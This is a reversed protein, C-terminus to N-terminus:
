AKALEILEDAIKNLPLVNDAFGRKVVEGPMGWVVCSKEDQALTSAGAGKMEGMGEAGDAGMGTLMLGVANPGANQALSRFLVDVSPKHRNVPPGDNLKCVYRAGDRVVMLHQDGPAIYAHGSLIQQGDRAESVTLQSMGDVRQAFPGSFAAPIHQCIVIGPMDPPLGALVEKIAETGGTSAGIGIIRDTTRFHRKVPHKALVADASHKESARSSDAVAHRIPRVRAGAAVKVKAVIEEAYEELRHAVDVKPKSIFDVAGLELARLTTDAGEETLTSIMVVPMPHLRMLNALFTLGDMRPMEVDLTLVDPKLKKIKERAVFPDIAAGVVEIGPAKGLIETLLQRVLASDDVILVKIM